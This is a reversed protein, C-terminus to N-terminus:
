VLLYTRRRVYKEVALTTKEVETMVFSEGKGEEVVWGVLEEVAGEDVLVEEEAEAGAGDEDDADDAEKMGENEAVSCESEPELDFSSSAPGFERPLGGRNERGVKGVAADNLAWASLRSCLSCPSTSLSDALVNSVRNSGEAFTHGGASCYDLGKEDTCGGVVLMTSIYWRREASTWAVKVYSVGDLRGEVLWCCVSLLSFWCPEM